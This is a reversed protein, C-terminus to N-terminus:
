GKKLSDQFVKLAEWENSAALKAQKPWTDPNALRIKQKQLIELIQDPQLKSLKTFSNVGNSVLVDSIVPGIGNILTLNDVQKKEKVEDSSIPELKIKIHQMSALNGDKGVNSLKPDQRMKLIVFLVFSTILGYILGFWLMPMISDDDNDPDYNKLNRM